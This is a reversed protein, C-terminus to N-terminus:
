ISNARCNLIFEVVPAPDELGHPHHKGGPKMIVKIIGGADRYREAFLGGNDPYYCIEDADGSVLIVPVGKRALEGAYNLPGENYDRITEDTLGYVAKCRIWEAENRPYRNLGAPWNRIDLCPADLYLCCTDDPYAHAYNVTYLGGRSFGFLAPKASLALTEICYSHFRKMAEVAKPAGYMDSLSCYAVHWGQGVLALDTSAFIGFFEARWVWPNGPAAKDPYMVSIRCAKEPLIGALEFEETRFGTQYAM